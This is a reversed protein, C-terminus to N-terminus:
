ATTSCHASGVTVTIHEGAYQHWLKIYTSGAEDTEHSYKDTADSATAEADPQNSHISVDYDGPYGDNAPSATATCWAASPPAAPARWATSDTYDRELVAALSHVISTNRTTLGLERNDQLSARSFNESGLFAEARSTGADVVIVKAHIYLGPDGPYTGVKGGAKVLADFASAYEATDNMVVHVAVGRRAAAVLADVVTVDSLEESEVWLSSRAAAIMSLLVSSANTPSWVLDAGVPPSISKHAFDADFTTVIAHVDLPSTDLVAFDRTNSYYESTLNLTMVWTEDTDIVMAKEHDAYFAPPAWTVSVHHSTLYGYAAGNRSGELHHDLIVRVDVGRAAAQALLNEAESDVLEYMELDISKKAGAISAYIRALGAEPEVLLTRVASASRYLHAADREVHQATGGRHIPSASVPPFGATAASVTTALVLTAAASAATRIRRVRRSMPCMTGSLHAGTTVERGLNEHQLDDERHDRERVVALPRESGV